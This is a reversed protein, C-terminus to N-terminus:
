SQPDPNGEGNLKKMCEPCLGHGFDAKPHQEAYMELPKWEGKEDRVRSCEACLPILDQITKLRTSADKLEATLREHELDIRKRSCLCGVVTSFLRLLECQHRTMATNRLLNDASVLGIVQEGDWLASFFQPGTTKSRRDPGPFTAHELLLFPERALLIRGEPGNPDVRARLHREDRLRGSEDVGWSGRIVNPEETRLWIGLRDFGLNTRGWEVARGILEDVSEAASLENTIAVLSSLLETFRRENEERTRLIRQAHELERRAKELELVRQRLEALERTESPATKVKEMTPYDGGM